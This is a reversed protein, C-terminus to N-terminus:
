TGPPVAAEIEASTFRMTDSTLTMRDFRSTYDIVAADGRVQVDALIAAVTDNVDVSVERKAALLERFDAEFGTDAANLRRPM